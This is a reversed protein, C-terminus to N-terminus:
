SSLALGFVPGHVVNVECRITMQGATYLLFIVFVHIFYKRLADGVHKATVPFHHVHNSSHKIDSQPIHSEPTCIQGMIKNKFKTKKRAVAARLLYQQSHMNAIPIRDTQRDTM